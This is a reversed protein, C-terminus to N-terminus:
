KRNCKNMKCLHCDAENPILARAFFKNTTTNQYKHKVQSAIKRDCYLDRLQQAAPNRQPTRETYRELIQLFQKMENM